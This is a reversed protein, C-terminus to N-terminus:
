TQAQGLQFDGGDDGGGHMGPQRRGALIAALGLPTVSPKDGDIQWHICQLGKKGRM